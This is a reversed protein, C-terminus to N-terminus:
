QILIPYEGAELVKVSLVGKKKDYAMNSKLLKGNADLVDMYRYLLVPTGGLGGCFSIGKQDQIVDGIGKISVNQTITLPSAPGREIKFSHLIGTMGHKPNVVFFESNNKAAFVVDTPEPVFGNNFNFGNLSSSLSIGNTSSTKTVAQRKNIKLSLGIKFGKKEKGGKKDKDKDGQHKSEEDDGGEHDDDDGDDGGGPHKFKFIQALEEGVPIRSGVNLLLLIPVTKHAVNISIESKEADYAIAPHYVTEEEGSLHHIKATFVCVVQDEKNKLIIHSNPSDVSINLHELHVKYVIASDHPINRLLLFQSLTNSKTAFSIGTEVDEGSRLSLFKASRALTVAPGVQFSVPTFGINWHASQSFYQITGDAALQTKLSLNLHPLSTANRKTIIQVNPLKSNEEGFLHRAWKLGLKPIQLVISQHEAKTAEDDSEEDSQVKASGSKKLGVIESKGKKKKDKDKEKEGKEKDDETQSLPSKKEEVKTKSKSSLGSIEVSMRKQKGTKEAEGRRGIKLGFDFKKKGKKADEEEDSSASEAEEGEPPSSTLGVQDGEVLKSSVGFIVAVPAAIAEPFKIIISTLDNNWDVTANILQKNADRIIPRSYVLVIKKYIDRFIIVQSEKIFEVEVGEFDAHILFEHDVNIFHEPLVFFHRTWTKEISVTEEFEGTRLNVFRDTYFLDAKPLNLSAPLSLKLKWLPVTPKFEISGDRSLCVSLQLEKNTFVAEDGNIVARVPVSVKKSIGGYLSKTWAKGFLNKNPAGFRWSTIEGGSGPTPSLAPISSNSSNLSVPSGGEIV